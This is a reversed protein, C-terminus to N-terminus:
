FKWEKKNKWQEQRVCAKREKRRSLCIPEIKSSRDKAELLTVLAKATDLSTFVEVSAGVAARRIRFWEQMMKYPTLLEM